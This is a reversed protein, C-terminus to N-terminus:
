GGEAVGHIYRDQHQKLTSAIENVWVKLVVTSLDEIGVLREHENPIGTPQSEESSVVMTVGIGVRKRIYVSAKTMEALHIQNAFHDDIDRCPGGLYRVWGNGQSAGLGM